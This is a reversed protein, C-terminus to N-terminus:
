VLAEYLTPIGTRVNTKKKLLKGGLIEKHLTLTLTNITTANFIDPRHYQHHVIGTDHPLVKELSYFIYGTLVIVKGTTGGVHIFTNTCNPLLVIM